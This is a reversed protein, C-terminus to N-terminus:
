LSRVEPDMSHASSGATTMGLDLIIGGGSLATAANQIDPVLLAYLRQRLHRRPSTSVFFPTQRLTKFFMEQMGINDTHCAM